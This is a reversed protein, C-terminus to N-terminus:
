GGMDLQELLYKRIMSFPTSVSIVYDSNKPSMFKVLSPAKTESVELLTRENVSMRTSEQVLTESCDDKLLLEIENSVDRFFKIVMDFYSFLFDNEKSHLSLDSKLSRLDNEIATFSELLDSYKYNKVRSLRRVSRVNNKIESLGRLSEKIYLAKNQREHWRRTMYNAVFTGIVLVIITNFFRSSLLGGLELSVM